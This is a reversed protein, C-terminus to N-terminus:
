WLTLVGFIKTLLLRLGMLCFFGSQFNAKTSSRITNNAVGFGSSTKAGFGYITMMSHIGEAVLTLDNLAQTVTEKKDDGVRDFPFYVLNFASSNKQVVSEILIPNKGTKTRRDHPNIVRFRKPYLIFHLFSTQWCQFERRRGLLVLYGYSPHIVRSTGMSGSLM